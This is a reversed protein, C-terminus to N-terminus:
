KNKGLRLRVGLGTSFSPTNSLDTGYSRALSGFAYGELRDGITRTLNAEVSAIRVSPLVVLDDTVPRSHAYRANVDVRSRSSIRESFSASAAQVIQTVGFAGPSQLREATLCFNRVPRTHCLEVLGSVGTSRTAAYFPTASTKTTSAGVAANLTWYEALSHELTGEALFTTGAGGADYDTRRASLRTGIRTVPTLQRTYRAGGVISDYGVIANGGAWLRQYGVNSGIFSREDVQHDIGLGADLSTSRGTLGLLTVDDIPISPLIETVLTGPDVSSVPATVGPIARSSQFVSRASSSNVSASGYLSTRPSRKSRWSISAGESDEFDYNSSFVRGAVYASLDVTDRETEVHLWPRVDVRLVGVLTSDDDALYPNSTVGGEGSISVGSQTSQASLPACTLAGWAVCLKWITKSSLNM